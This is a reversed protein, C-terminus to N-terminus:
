TPKLYLTTKVPEEEASAPHRPGIVPHRETARAVIM